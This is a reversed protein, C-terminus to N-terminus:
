QAKIPQRNLQSPNMKIPSKTQSGEVADAYMPDHTTGAGLIGWCLVRILSARVVGAFLNKAM